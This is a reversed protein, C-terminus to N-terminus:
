SMRGQPTLLALHLPNSAHPVAARPSIAGFTLSRPGHSRPGPGGDPRPGSLGPEDPFPRHLRRVFLRTTRWAAHVALVPVAIRPLGSAPGPSTFVGLILMGGLSLSWALVTLSSLAITVPVGGVGWARLDMDEDFSSPKTLRAVVLAWFCLVVVLAATLLITPLSATVALFTGM